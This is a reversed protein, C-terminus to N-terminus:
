VPCQKRPRDPTSRDDRLMLPGTAESPVSVVTSLWRVTRLDVVPFFL